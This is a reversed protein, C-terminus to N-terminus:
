ANYECHSYTSVLTLTDGSVICQIRDLTLFVRLIEIECYLNGSIARGQTRRSDLTVRCM